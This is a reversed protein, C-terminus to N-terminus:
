FITEALEQIALDVYVKLENETINEKASKPYICLPVLLDKKRYLYIYSRLGGSKGKNNDTSKVRIKYIAKGIYIENELDLKDIKSM